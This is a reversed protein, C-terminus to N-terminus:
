DTIDSLLHKYHYGPKLEKKHLMDDRMNLIAGYADKHRYTNYNEPDTPLYKYKSNRKEQSVFFPNVYKPKEKKSEYYSNSNHFDPYKSSHLVNAYKEKIIGNILNDFEFRKKMLKLGLREHEDWFGIDAPGECTNKSVFDYIQTEIDKIENIVESVSYSM